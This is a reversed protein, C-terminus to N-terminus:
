THIVVCRVVKKVSWWQLIRAFFLFGTWKGDVGLRGMEDRHRYTFSYLGPFVNESIDEISTNTFGARAFSLLYDEKNMFNSYPAGTLFFIIKLLLHQFITIKDGQILDTMALKGGPRLIRSCDELFRKRSSFHYVCDLALIRDVSKDPLSAVYEVADSNIFQIDPFRRRSLETQTPSSTIGRLTRPKM